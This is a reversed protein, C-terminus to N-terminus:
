QSSLVGDSFESRSRHNKREVLVTSAERSILSGASHIHFMVDVVVSLYLASIMVPRIIIPLTTSSAPHASILLVAHM